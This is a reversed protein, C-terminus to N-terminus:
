YNEGNPDSKNIEQGGIFRHDLILEAKNRFLSDIAIYREM